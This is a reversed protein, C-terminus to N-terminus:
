LKGETQSLVLLCLCFFLLLFKFLKYTAERSVHSLTFLGCAALLHEFLEVDLFDFRRGALIRADDELHVAFWTVLDKFHFSKFCDAVISCHEEIVDTERNFLAVFYDEQTSVWPSHCRKEFDDVAVSFGLCSGVVPADGDCCSIQREVVCFEELAIEVEDIPQTLEAFAVFHIELSEKASHEERTFFYQLFDIHKRTTFLHTAHYSSHLQLVSVAENEVCGSVVEVQFADLGEVVVELEELAVDEKGAVVVLEDLGNCGADDFERWCADDVLEHVVVVVDAAIGDMFLFLSHVACVGSLDDIPM